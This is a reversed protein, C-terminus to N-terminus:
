RQQAQLFISFLESQSNIGLKAYLHKKHARVTEVSIALKQAIGKSSYGGLMLRSVELERTTLAANKWEAMSQELEQQRNGSMMPSPTSLTTLEFHYRQRLLSIVWPQILSLTAIEAPIFRRSSGLSLCLTQGHGLPCNFQIEDEVVNLRFYRQYYETFRFRDPAVEDLRVLGAVAQERSAVYFPDLLYLGALYDQFLQDVGGDAEPNEAFVQPAQDAQFLLAVWSDFRVYDGLTQVLAAWFNPRDLRDILSGLARHWSIDDLNLGM